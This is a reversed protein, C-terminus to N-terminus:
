ASVKGRVHPPSGRREAPRGSLQAKEGCMRPHDWPLTPSACCRRRKGACAPTIGKSKKMPTSKEAKGRVHPPSGIAPVTPFRYLWKEGCMRPHDRACSALAAIRARKGACAPTIGTCPRRREDHDSKEGCMRPHDWSGTTLKPITLSKGACAPTIGPAIDTVGILSVKGRVHPPSGMGQLTYLLGFIKEGCM